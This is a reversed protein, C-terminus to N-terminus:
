KARFFPRYDYKSNPIDRLIEKINIKNLFEESLKGKAIKEFECSGGFADVVALPPVWNFGTAMVDDAAYINEGIANTIVLGYIVYKFLLQICIIAEISHDCALYKFAEKYNGIKFEKKMQNAFPFDYNKRERYVGTAIDYVYIMKTGDLNIVSKYLGCNTKRGLKGAM